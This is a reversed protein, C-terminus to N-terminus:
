LKQETSEAAMHITYWWISSESEPKKIQYEEPHSPNRDQSIYVSQIDTLMLNKSLKESATSHGDGGMMNGSVMIMLCLM